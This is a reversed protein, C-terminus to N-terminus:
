RLLRLDSSLFFLQLTGRGRGLLYNLSARGSSKSSCSSHIGLLETSNRALALLWREQLRTALADCRPCKWSCAVAVAFTPGSKRGCVDQALRLARSQPIAQLAGRPARLPARDNGEGRTRIRGWRQRLRLMGSRRGRKGNKGRTNRASGVAGVGRQGGFRWSRRSWAEWRSSMRTKGARRRRSSISM